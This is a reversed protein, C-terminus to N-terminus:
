KENFCWRLKKIGDNLLCYIYSKHVNLQEALDDVPTHEIYYGILAERQRQNFTKSNNIYDVIEAAKEQIEFRGDRVLHHGTVIKDSSSKYVIKDLSLTSYKNDMRGCLINLVAYRARSILYSELNMGKSPNFKTYGKLIASMVYDINDQSLKVYKKGRKIITNIALKEAKKLTM